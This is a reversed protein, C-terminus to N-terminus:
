INDDDRDERTSQPFARNVLRRIRDGLVRPVLYYDEPGPDPPHAEDYIEQAREVIWELDMDPGPCETGPIAENHGIIHFRDIKFEVPVGDLEAGDFEALWAAIQAVQERAEPTINWEPAGSQDLVEVAVSRWNWDPGTSAPKQKPRIMEFTEGSTRIYWTPCSSRSNKYSFYDLQDVTTGTHHIIFRDIIPEVPQPPNGQTDRLAPSGDNKFGLPAELGKAAGPWVPEYEPLGRPNDPNPPTPKPPATVKTLGETSQSTFGGSWQWNSDGDRQFWVNNGDVAEANTWAKMKVVSGGPSSGIAPSSTYPVARINAPNPGVTRDASVPPPDPENLDALDHTGKDTFGGSWYFDGSSQGRFWVKNGDVAEGNIWGNFTGVAGPALTTTVPGQTSPDNRGNAGNPGAVRQNPKVTSNLDPLGSTSTSTFGGSWYWQNTTKQRFWVKNNDISEGNIWGDFTATVGPGITGVVPGNTSPDGRGNAGNAGATRQDPQTTPNLNTLNATSTSTFGGSWFFDGSHAGRFWVKNGDVTQGNIWGDMDAVTGPALTQTVPGNTSPDNRGNAANSGVVRQKPGVSGSGVYKAFDITQTVWPEGPWLTQHIHPGYYWDNGNGSGGVKGIQMGRTLKDGPKKWVESMHLTRTTRGDNLRYECYRGTAGSNTTKIYTVTGAEVAYVPSGYAVGYDTGAEGSPPNRDLHCQWSCSIYGSNGPLAYGM